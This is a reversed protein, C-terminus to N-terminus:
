NFLVGEACKQALAVVPLLVENACCKWMVNGALIQTEVKMTPDYINSMSYGHPKNVLKFKEKM